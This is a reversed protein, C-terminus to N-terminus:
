SVEIGRFAAVNATLAQSLARRDTSMTIFRFGQDAYRTAAAVTKAAIGVIKGADLTVNRVHEIMADLSAADHDGRVSSALDTSGIFCGSVGPTAVIQEINHVATVHEIMVLLTFRENFTQRYDDGYHLSARCGSQSRQGMPPYYAARVIAEAQEPTNVMPVLLTTYGMDLLWEMAYPANVPPRTVALCNTTQIARVAERLSGQDFAGHQWDVVLFDYGAHCALEVAEISGLASFTGFLTRGDALAQHVTNM